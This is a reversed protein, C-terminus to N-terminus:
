YERRGIYQALFEFHNEELGLEISISVADDILRDADNKAKEMGVTGPYTAKQNKSDSGIKKGLKKQDGEIDLIDDIIQFALGIKEGYESIRSLARENVGALIAGIRV